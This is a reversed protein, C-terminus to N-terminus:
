ILNRNLDHLADFPHAGFGRVRDNGLKDRLIAIFEHEVQEVHVLELEQLPIHIRLANM